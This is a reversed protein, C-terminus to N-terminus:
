SNIKRIAFSPPPDLETTLYMIEWDNKSCFEYVAEIVGYRTMGNWHGVIFDHGAMIGGEKMKPAYGELEAITTKYSHDTDIYIWDFYDNKFQDVVDTSLGLNIEVTGDNIQNEFRKEVGKRKEQNYRKSGWFDVLHLKAPSCTDLIEQSFGGEDVGIEAVVGQKPLLKLLEQRTSLLSANKLHEEGPQHKPIESDVKEWYGRFLSRLLAFIKRRLSEPILKLLANVM